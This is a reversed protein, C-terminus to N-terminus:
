HYIGAGFARDKSDLYQGAKGAYKELQGALYTKAAKLAPALLNELGKIPLYSVIKERIQKFASSVSSLNGLFDGGYSTLLDLIQPFETRRLRARWQVSYAANNQGGNALSGNCQADDWKGDCDFYFEAEAFYGFPAQATSTLGLKGQAISVDHEQADTYKNSTLNLAWVENWPAGNATGTWPYYPGDHGWWEDWGPDLQALGSGGTSTDIKPIMSGATQGEKLNQNDAATKDNLKGIKDNVKGAQGGFDPNKHPDPESSGNYGLSNCYRIQIGIGIIKSIYGKLKSLFPIDIISFITDIVETAIFACVAKYPNASVPLGLKEGSTDGTSRRWGSNEKFAANILPDMITGPALSTSIAFVKLDRQKASLEHGYDTGVNYSKLAGLWPYGYGAVEEAIHIGTCAPKMINNGYRVYANHAGEWLPCCVIDIIPIMCGFFLLDNVIGLVIHFFVFAMMVLNLASIFNMGKAQLAASTFAAHDAAEQMQDRFVIADGIGIITWLAGILFCAMCLGIVMIAGNQNANLARARDRLSRNPVPAGSGEDSLFSFWPTPMTGTMM